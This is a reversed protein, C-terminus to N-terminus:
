DDNPLTLFREVDFQPDVTWDARVVRRHGSADAKKQNIHENRESEKAQAADKINDVVWSPLEPLIALLAEWNRYDYRMVMGVPILRLVEPITLRGVIPRFPM